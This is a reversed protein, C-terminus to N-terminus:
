LPQDDRLMATCLARDSLWAPDDAFAQGSAKVNLAYRSKYAATLDTLDRAVEYWATQQDIGGSQVKLAAAGETLFTFARKSRAVTGAQFDAGASYDIVSYFLAACRVLPYSDDSMKTATAFDPLDGAHTSTALCAGLLAALCKQYVKM